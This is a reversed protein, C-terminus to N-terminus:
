NREDQTGGRAIFICGIAQCLLGFVPIKRLEKKAAFAPQYQFIYVIIDSWSVHNSIFTSIFKPEEDKKYDKGLYESYDYDVVKREIKMSM